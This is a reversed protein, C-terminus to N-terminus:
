VDGSLWEMIDLVKIGNYDGQTLKDSTLIFKPYNDMIRELPKIEGEFTNEDSLDACVQYHEITNKKRAVFDVESDGIKGINVRYGRRRLELYVLNELTFGLDYRHRPLIYNRLGMDVMYLKGNTKLLQKGVIDFREAQYFLFSETLAEVYAAVTNQSVKRGSSILYDTIKKISVPSGIVSALYKSITKLLTIDTIKRSEDKKRSSREEIDKVIVTNYIGEIYAEAKEETRSMVSLYPLGGYRMYERLAADKDDQGNLSYFDRFSLPFMPIEVYRGTLLTALEGSLFYANSGTIYIDVNDKVYLSDVAKQFDDVLQVEDLFIYTMENDSLRGTIHKYLIRYDLFEENELEELNISIIRDKNIGENLLLTQYQKLLTSKGVRRLGTIVKRVAGVPLGTPNQHIPKCTTRVGNEPKPALAAVWLVPVAPWAGRHACQRGAKEKRYPSVTLEGM